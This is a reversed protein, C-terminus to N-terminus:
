FLSKFWSTLADTGFVALAILALFVLATIVKITTRLAPNMSQAEERQAKLHEIQAKIEDMHPELDNNLTEITGLLESAKPLASFPVVISINSLKVDYGTVIENAVGQPYVNEEVYPINADKLMGTLMARETGGAICLRVPENIDEIERLKHKCGDFPLNDGFCLQKCTKCYKM